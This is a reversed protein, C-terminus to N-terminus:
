WPVAKNLDKLFNIIMFQEGPALSNIVAELPGFVSERFESHETVATKGKESLHFAVEKANGPRTSKLIYGMSILKKVFKSVAPKSVNMRDALETLNCGENRNLAELTHVDSSYLLDGTGYKRPARELETLKQHALNIQTLIPSPKM